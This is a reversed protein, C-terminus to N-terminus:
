RCIFVCDVQLQRGTAQNCFGPEVLALDFGREDMYRPFDRLKMEDAYMPVLSVETQVLTIKKLSTLAGELVHQEYGQVDMKLMIKNAGGKVDDFIEDLTAVSVTETGVYENRTTNPALAFREETMELFSSRVTKQAQNIKQLGSEAGLAINHAEWADDKAAKTALERYCESLPEFSVIRGRYGLSRMEQAYQGVNAGIDLILDINASIVLKARLNKTNDLRNIRVIEFGIPKILSNCVSIVKPILKRM